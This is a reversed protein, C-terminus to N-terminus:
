RYPVGLCPLFSYYNQVDPFKYFFGVFQCGMGSSFSYLSFIHLHSGLVLEKQRRERM